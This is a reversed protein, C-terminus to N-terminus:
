FLQRLNLGYRTASGRLTELSGIGYKTMDHDLNLFIQTVRFLRSYDDKLYGLHESNVANVERNVMDPKFLPHIFFQAFM